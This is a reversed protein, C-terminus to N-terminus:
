AQAPTGCGANQERLSEPMPGEQAQKKLSKSSCPSLIIAAQNNKACKM